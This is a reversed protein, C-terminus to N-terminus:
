NNYSYQKEVFNILFYLNNYKKIYISVYPNNLKKELYKSFSKNKLMNYKNINNEINIKVVVHNAINKKLFVRHIESLTKKNLIDNVLNQKVQYYDNNQIQILPKILPKVLDKNSLNNPLIDDDLDDDLIHKNIYDIIHSNYSLIKTPDKKIKALSDNYTNNYVQQARTNAIHPTKEEIWAVSYEENYAKQATDKAYQEQILKKDTKLQADKIKIENKQNKKELKKFYQSDSINKKNLKQNNNENENENENLQKININTEILKKIIPIGINSTDIKNVIYPKSM